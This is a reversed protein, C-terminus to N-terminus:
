RLWKAPSVITLGPTPYRCYRSFGDEWGGLNGDLMGRTHGQELVRNVGM